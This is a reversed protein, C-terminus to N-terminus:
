AAKAIKCEKGLQALLKRGADTVDWRHPHLLLKRRLSHCVRANTEGSFCSQEGVLAAFLFIAELPSVKM